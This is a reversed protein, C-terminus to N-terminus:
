CCGNVFRVRSDPKELMKSGRPRRARTTMLSQHKKWAKQRRFNPQSSKSGLDEVFDHSVLRWDNKIQFDQFNRM